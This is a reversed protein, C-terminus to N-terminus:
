SFLIPNIFFFFNPKKQQIGDCRNSQYSIFFQDLTFHTGVIVVQQRDLDNGAASDTSTRTTLKQLLSQQQQQQENNQQKGLLHINYQPPLAM